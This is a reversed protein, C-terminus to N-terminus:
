RPSPRSSQRGRSIRDTPPEPEHQRARCRELSGTRHGMTAGPARQCMPGGLQRDKWARMPQRPHAASSHLDAPAGGVHGFAQLWCGPWNHLASSALASAAHIGLWGSSRGCRGHGAVADAAVGECAHQRSRRGLRAQTTARRGASGQGRLVARSDPRRVVRTVDEDPRWTRNETERLRPVRSKANRTALRHRGRHSDVGCM